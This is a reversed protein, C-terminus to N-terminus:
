NYNWYFFHPFYQNKIKKCQFNHLFINLKIPTGYSKLSYLYGKFKTFNSIIRCEEVKILYGIKLLFGCISKSNSGMKDIAKKDQFANSFKKIVIHM